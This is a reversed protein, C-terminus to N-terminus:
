MPLIHLYESYKDFIMCTVVVMGVVMVLGEVVMVLGEVVMELTVVVVLAVVAALTM